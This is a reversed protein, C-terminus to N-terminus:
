LGTLAEETAQEDKAIRKAEFRGAQQEQLRRQTEALQQTMQQLGAVPILLTTVPEPTLKAEGAKARRLQVLEIRVVGNSVAVAGIGDAFIENM